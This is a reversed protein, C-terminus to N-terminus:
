GGAIRFRVVRKISRHLPVTSFSSIPIQEVGSGFKPQSLHIVTNDFMSFDCVHGITAVRAGGGGGGGFLPDGPPFLDRFFFFIECM